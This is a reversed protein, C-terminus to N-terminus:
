KDSLVRFANSLFFMGAFTIVWAIIIAGLGAAAAMNAPLNFSGGGIMSGVVVGSLLVLGLKKTAPHTSEDTSKAVASAPLLTVPQDMIIEEVNPM